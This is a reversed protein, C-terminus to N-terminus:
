GAGALLAEARAQAARLQDNVRFAEQVAEEVTLRTVTQAHAVGGSLLLATAVRLLRSPRM